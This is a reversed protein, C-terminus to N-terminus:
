GMYREPPFIREESLDKCEKLGGGTLTRIAKITAIKNRDNIADLLDRVQDLSVRGSGDDTRTVKAIQTMEQMNALHDMAQAMISRFEEQTM